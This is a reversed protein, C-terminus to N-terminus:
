QGASNVGGVNQRQNPKADVDTLLASLTMNLASAIMSLNILAVNREGREVAGFYSRDMGARAALEEQSIGLKLRAAKIAKGFRKLLAIDKRSHTSMISLSIISQHRM